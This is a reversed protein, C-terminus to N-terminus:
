SPFLLAPHFSMKFYKVYDGSMSWPGNDDEGSFEHHEYTVQYGYPEFTDELYPFEDSKITKDDYGSLRLITNVMADYCFMVGLEQEMNEETIETNRNDYEIYDNTYNFTIVEENQMYITYKKNATDNTVTFGAGHSNMPEIFTSNYDNFVEETTLMRANATSIGLFFVASILIYNIIRKM